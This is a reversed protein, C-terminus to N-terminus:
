TQDSSDGDDLDDVSSESIEFTELITLRMCAWSSVKIDRKVKEPDAVTEKEEVSESSLVNSPTVSDVKFKFHGKSGTIM